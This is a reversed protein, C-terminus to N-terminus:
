KQRFREVPCSLGELVNSSGWLGTEVEWSDTLVWRAGAEGVRSWPAVQRGKSGWMELLWLQLCSQSFWRCSGRRAWLM